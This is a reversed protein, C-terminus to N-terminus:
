SAAEATTLPLSLRARVGCPQMAEVRLSAAGGYAELLRERINALASGSGKRVGAAPPRDLGLGDDDVSLVLHEGDDSARVVVHGGDIKPELGHQIANEVLPQLLLPPLTQRRLGEPVDIRYDLRDDMRVKLVRLYADVLDIEDGLTHRERRLGGLSARLYDVFSELMHKARATDHDMLGVVNALTNFLFHPEIQGQLLALRAQAAAREARMQRQRLAFFQYFAFSILVSMVAASFMDQGRAADWFPVVKIGVVASAIRCGIDTGALAILTMVVGGRWGSIWRKGLTRCVLRGGLRIPYGITLAIILTAAYWRLWASPSKWDSGDQAAFAFGALTFVIAVAMSFAITWLHQLWRPGVPARDPNLWSRWSQRLLERPTFTTDM